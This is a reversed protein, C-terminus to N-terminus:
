TLPEDTAVQKLEALLTKRAEVESKNLAAQLVDILSQLDRAKSQHSAMEANQKEQQTRCGRVQAELDSVKSQLESQQRKLYELEEDVAEPEIIAGLRAVSQEVAKLDKQKSALQATYSDFDLGARQAEAECSSASRKEDQIQRSFTVTLQEVASVPGNVGHSYWNSSLVENLFKFQDNLTLGRMASGIIHEYEFESFSYLLRYNPANRIIQAAFDYEPLEERRWDTFLKYIVKRLQCDRGTVWLDEDQYVVEGSQVLSEAAQSLGLYKNAPDCTRLRQRILTEFGEPLNKVDLRQPAVHMIGLLLHATGTQAHGLKQAENVAYELVAQVDSDLKMEKGSPGKM